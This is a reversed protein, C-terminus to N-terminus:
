SSSTYKGGKKGVRRDLIKEITHANEDEAPVTQSWDVEILDEEDEEDEGSEEEKYSVEKGARNSGRRSFLFILSFYCVM